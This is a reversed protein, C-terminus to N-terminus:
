MSSRFVTGRDLSGRDAVPSPMPMPQPTIQSTMDNTSSSVQPEQSKPESAAAVDTSLQGVEAGTDPAQPVPEASPPAVMSSSSSSPAPPSSPPAQAAESSGSGTAAAPPQQQPTSAPLAAEAQKLGEEQISILDQLQKKRLPDKEVAAQQKLNEITLKFAQIAPNETSSSPAATSTPPTSTAAVSEASTRQVSEYVQAEQQSPEPPAAQATMFSAPSSSSSAPGEPTSAPPAAESSVNVDVRQAGSTPEAATKQDTEEETQDSNDDQDGEDGQDVQGGGEKGTSRSAAYIAGFGAAAGATSLLGSALLGAGVLAFKRLAKGLLKKTSGISGMLKSMLGKDKEEPSPPATSAVAPGAVKVAANETSAEEQEAAQRDMREKQARRAEEMSAVHKSWVGAINYINDAINLVVAEIRHLTANVKDQETSQEKLADGVQTDREEGAFKKEFAKGLASGVIGSGFVAKSVKKIATKKLDAGFTAM